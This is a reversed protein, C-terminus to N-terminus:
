QCLTVLFMDKLPVDQGQGKKRIGGEWGSTLLEPGKSADVMISHSRCDRLLSALQGVVESAILRVKDSSKGEPIKDYYHFGLM